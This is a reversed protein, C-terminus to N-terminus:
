KDSNMGILLSVNTGMWGDANVISVSPLDVDTTWNSVAVDDAMFQLEVLLSAIDFIM